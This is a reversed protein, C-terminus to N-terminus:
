YILECSSRSYNELKLKNPLVKTNVVGFSSHMEM